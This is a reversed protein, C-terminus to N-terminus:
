AAGGFRKVCKDIHEILSAWRRGRLVIQGRFRLVWARDKESWRIQWQPGVGWSPATM